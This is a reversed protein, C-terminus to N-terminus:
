FVFLTGASDNPDNTPYQTRFNIATHTSQISIFIYSSKSFSIRKIFFNFRTNKNPCGTCTIGAPDIFVATEDAAFINGYPYQRQQHKKRNYVIFDVLTPTLTVPSKQCHTTVAWITLVKRHM